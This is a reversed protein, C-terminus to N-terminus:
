SLRLAGVLLQLRERWPVLESEIATVRRVRIRSIGAWDMTNQVIPAEISVLALTPSGM